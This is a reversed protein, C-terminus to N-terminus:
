TKLFVKLTRLKADLVFCFSGTFTLSGWWRKMQDM